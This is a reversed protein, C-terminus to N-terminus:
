KENGSPTFWKGTNPNLKHCYTCEGQFITMYHNNKGGTLHIMHVMQSFVPANQSMSSHCDICARPIDALSDTASPHKGALIVGDPSAAQAKELLKPEVKETWNAMSTSIRTDMNRDIFNLHCSVCGSPFVDEATIGPIDRAPPTAEPEAANVQYFTALILMLTFGLLSFKLYKICM